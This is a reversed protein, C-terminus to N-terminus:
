ALVLLSKEHGVVEMTGFPLVMYILKRAAHVYWALWSGEHGNRTKRGPKFLCAIGVGKEGAASSILFELLQICRPSIPYHAAPARRM